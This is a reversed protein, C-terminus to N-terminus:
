IHEPTAARQKATPAFEDAVPRLKSLDPLAHGRPILWFRRCAELADVPAAESAPPDAPREAVTETSLCQEALHPDGALSPVDPAPDVETPDPPTAALALSTSLTMLAFCLRPLKM